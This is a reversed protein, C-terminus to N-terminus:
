KKNSGNKRSDEFIMLKIANNRDEQYIEDMWISWFDFYSRSDKESIFWDSTNEGKLGRVDKFFKSKVNDDICVRNPTVKNGSRGKRYAIRICGDRRILCATGAINTYFEKINEYKDDNTAVAHEIEKDIEAKTPLAAECLVVEPLKDINIGENNIVSQDDFTCIDASSVLSWGESSKIGDVKVKIIKMETRQSGEINVTRKFVLNTIM